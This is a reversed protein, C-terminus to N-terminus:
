INLMEGLGSSRHASRGMAEDLLAEAPCLLTFWRRARTIGTYVLERTLVPSSADPLVLVTHEFESGQSKHVTMAYATEADNLRSPLVKKFRRDPTPFVVKLTKSDDTASGGEVPLAIGIDGNMLGLGYDNRTVMVPRGPYWGQEAAILGARALHRAAAQNLGAVGWDGKRVAALLRFRGFAELVRRFWDEEGDLTTPAQAVIELFARYGMPPDGPGAAASGEPGGDLLLRAFERDEPHTATSLRIDEFGQKWVAQVRKPDGANVERALTGIGSGGGFRHSERLVVIQQNLRSGAGMFPQLDYGTGRRVWAVTEPRYGPTDADACLEGLVAGAEVSALQDKDGLLVLRATPPLAELLAAMMELDIMSAEDVVLLDLHLPNRRHHAFHRTDPRSGLLRHLTTAETPIHGRVAEPLSGATQGISESLRAAAKGTPAALRIRLRSGQELALEQLLGLLRVVTTTKGTGPGGSIVSFAGRAAIAAAVSQWHIAQRDAEERSRLGAFLADLRQSLREPVPLIQSLRRHLHEAVQRSYEWFRRLYLRGNALVLPAGDGGRDRAVLPSQGLREEWQQQSVGALLEGPRDPLLGDGEGEPPLMLITEPKELTGALDLCVHGRGLQHSALAAALLVLDEAAPQQRKLFRAFALDLPRIWGHRMWAELLPFLRDPAMAM